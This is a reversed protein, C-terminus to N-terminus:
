PSAARWTACSSGPTAAECRSGRLTWGSGRNARRPSGYLPSGPPLHDFRRVRLPGDRAAADIEHTTDPAPGARLRLMVTGDEIRVNRFLILPAPGRPGKATDPAAWPPAVRRRQPAREPAARHQVRAPAPGARVARGPGGRVRAPQLLARARPLWAVLTTTPPRVAPRRLPHTRHAAHRRRRRDRNTGTFVQRLAGEAARAVLNRGAGTGILASLARPLRGPASSGWLAVGLSRRVM